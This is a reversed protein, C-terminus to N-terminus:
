KVMNIDIIDKIPILKNEMTILSNANKGAIKTIITENSTIIELEIDFLYKPLGILHNIKQEINMKKFKDIKRYVEKNSTNSQHDNRSYYFKQCNEIQRTIQNVFVGPKLKEV